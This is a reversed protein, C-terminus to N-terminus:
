VKNHGDDPFVDPPLLFEIPCGLFRFMEFLPFSLPFFHVKDTHFHSFIYFINHHQNIHPFFLLSHLPFFYIDIRTPLSIFTHSHIVRQLSANNKTTCFYPNYFYSFSFLSCFLYFFFIPIHFSTVFVCHFM